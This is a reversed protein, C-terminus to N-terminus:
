NSKIKELRYTLAFVAHKVDANVDDFIRNDDITVRKVEYGDPFLRYRLAQKVAELCSSIVKNGYQGTENQNHWIHLTVRLDVVDEPLVYVKTIVPGTINIYPSIAKEPIYTYLRQNEENMAMLDIPILQNLEADTALRQTLAQELSTIPSTM